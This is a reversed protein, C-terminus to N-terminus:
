GPRPGRKRRVYDSVHEGYRDVFEALHDQGTVTRRCSDAGCHCSFPPMLENYFTAYDLTIEEDARIDRRAVVDLGRLWANPDCSHNIPRWEEPDRSWTVWVEDTLPWAYRRFADLEVDSWHREVHSRTVLTHPTAEFAAITEGAAITRRAFHGYDGNGNSRILFPALHGRPRGFAAAVIHRTFGAHGAPDHLLCLDASGPDSAPYYVGCNPNIELMFLRGDPAIRIDCRGYGTGHLGAFMRASDDRLRAELEPDQVPVADLGHYEVWKLHYHKFTEGEPFRYAIPKYTIPSGPDAANEAVLVTAEGGEIFEEVMAGGYTAFFDRAQKQLQAFTTVRSEPKLGISSYSSPHKVILPFALTDAARELDDATRAMVHAPADIGLAACVRKMADRSPDYFRSDAGTFPLDLRELTQVVEIGPASSDWAGDCFNFFLDYGEQSLQCVRHVATAKELEVETWEADPLFPRPDCRVDTGPTTADPDSYDYSLLCVRM